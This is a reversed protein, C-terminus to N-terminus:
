TITITITASRKKIARMLKMSLRQHSQLLVVIAAAVAVAEVTVTEVMQKIVTVVHNAMKVTTAMIITITKSHTQITQRNKRAIMQVAVKSHSNSKNLNIPVLCMRNPNVQQHAMQIEWQEFNLSSRFITAFADYSRVGIPM